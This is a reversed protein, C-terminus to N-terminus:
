VKVQKLPMIYLLSEKLSVILRSQLFHMEELYFIESKEIEDVKSM